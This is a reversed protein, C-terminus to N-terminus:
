KFFERIEGHIMENVTKINKVEKEKNNYQLYEKIVDVYNLNHKKLKEMAMDSDYDTQRMVISVLNNLEYDNLLGKDSEINM